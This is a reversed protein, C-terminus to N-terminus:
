NLILFEVNWNQIGYDILGMDPNYFKIVVKDSKRPDSINIKRDLKFGFQSKDLKVKHLYTKNDYEIITDIGLIELFIHNFEMNCYVNANFLSVNDDHYGTHITKQYINDNSVYILSKM